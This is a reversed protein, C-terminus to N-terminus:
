KVKHQAYVDGHSYVVSKQAGIYRKVGMKALFRLIHGQVPADEWEPSHWILEGKGFYSETPPCDDKRIDEPPNWVTPGFCVYEEAAETFPAGTKPIYKYHLKGKSEENSMLLRLTKLDEPDKELDIVVDLFKFGEAAVSGIAYHGIEEVAKIDGYLKSYGLQERGTLIAETMDEWLVPEFNGRIDGDEGHFVVPIEIHVINYGKGALWALNRLASFTVIVYPGVLEFKKPMIAELKETEVEVAVSYHTTKGPEDYIWRGGEPKQRPTICPGFVVPMMYMWGDKIEFSMKIGGDVQNYRIM